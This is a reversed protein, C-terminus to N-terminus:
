IYNLPCKKFFSSEFRLLHDVGVSEFRSVLIDPKQIFPTIISSVALVGNFIVLFLGCLCLYACLHVYGKAKASYKM